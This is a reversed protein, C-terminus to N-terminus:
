DVLTTHRRDVSRCDMSFISETRQNWRINGGPRLVEGPKKM